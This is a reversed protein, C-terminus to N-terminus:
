YIWKGNQYRFMEAIGSGGVRQCNSAGSCQMRNETYHLIGVYPTSARGTPRLEVHWERGPATHNQGAKKAKAERQQMDQVWGRAFSQFSAEAKERLGSPAIAAPEAWAMPAAGLAMSLALLGSCIWRNAM